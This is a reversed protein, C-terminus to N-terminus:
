WLKTKTNRVFFLNFGSTAQLIRVESNRGHTTHYFNVPGDFSHASKTKVVFISAANGKSISTLIYWLRIHWTESILLLSHLLFMLVVLERVTKLKRTVFIAAYKPM